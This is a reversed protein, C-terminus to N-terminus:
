IGIKIQCRKFTRQWFQVHAMTAERFSNHLEGAVYHNYYSTYQETASNPPQLITQLPERIENFQSDLEALYPQIETVFFRYFVNNLYEAKQQNRNKGCIVTSENEELLRTTTNLWDKSRTISYVLQGFYRHTHIQEQHFLLREAQKQQVTQNGQIAQYVFDLYRIAEQNEAKGPFNNLAFPLSTIRLQQRWEKGSTLMNWFYVPLQKRKLQRFNVLEPQLESDQPLTDICHELGGMFLLEYRLQHTRDQVKGLVSNREAILHFLGCKRLEYADLLGMRIDEIPILLDRIDALQIIQTEPAPSPSVDLVNALRSHYTEFSEEATNRECGPLTLFSLSLFLPYLTQRSLM